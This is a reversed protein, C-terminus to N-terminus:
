IKEAEPAKKRWQVSVFTGPSLIASVLTSNGRTRSAIQQAQPIELDADKIPLEMNLITIPTQQIYLDIKHPGRDLSSKVSFNAKVTYEGKGKLIVKHYGGESVILAPKNDVTLENIAMNQRLIPINLYGEDKMIHVIFTATFDTANDNMKGSYESKTILYEFPPKATPDTPTKMQDVLKQFEQKSLIVNGDKATYPPITKVGTQALLKHFTQLPIVINDGDLNLLKKFEDWSVTVQSDNEPKEQAMTSNLPIWCLLLLTTIWISSNIKM